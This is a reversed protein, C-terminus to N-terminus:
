YGVSKEPFEVIANCIEYYEAVLKDEDEGAQIREVMQKIKTNIEELKLRKELGFTADEEDARNDYLEILNDWEQKIEEKTRPSASLDLKFQFDHDPEDIGDYRFGNKVMAKYSGFNDNSAGGRMFKAGEQKALECITKLIEVGYGKCWHKLIINFGFDWTDLNKSNWYKGLRCTGVLEETKKDFVARFYMVDYADEFNKFTPENLSALREVSTYPNRQSNFRANFPNAWSKGIELKEEPKLMKFPKFILRETEIIEPLM